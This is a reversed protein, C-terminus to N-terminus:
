SGGQDPLVTGSGESPVWEYVSVVKKSKHFHRIDDDIVAIWCM